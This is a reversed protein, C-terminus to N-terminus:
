IIKDFAHLISVTMVWLAKNTDCSPCVGIEVSVNWLVGLLNNVGVLRFSLDVFGKLALLSPIYNEIWHEAIESVFDRKSPEWAKDTQEEALLLM